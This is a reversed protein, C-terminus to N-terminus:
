GMENKNTQTRRSQMGIPVPGDPTILFSYKLPICRQPGSIRFNRILAAVASCMELEAFHRGVCMRAGFGFPLVAFPQRPRQGLWREPRYELPREFTAQFRFVYCSSPSHIVCVNIYLTSKRM